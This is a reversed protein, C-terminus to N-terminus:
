ELYSSFTESLATGFTVAFHQTIVNLADCLRGNTTQRTTATHLADRIEDVLLRTAHELHEQLVHNTVGDRVGFVCTALRDRRHVNDVCQFALTASEITKSTLFRSRASVCVYVVVRSNECGSFKHPTRKTQTTKHNLDVLKARAIKLQM